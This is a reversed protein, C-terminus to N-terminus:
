IAAAGLYLSQVDASVGGSEAQLDGDDGAFAAAEFTLEAIGADLYYAQPSFKRDIEIQRRLKSPYYPFAPDLDYAAELCDVANM